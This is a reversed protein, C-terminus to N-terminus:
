VEEITMNINWYRDTVTRMVLEYSISSQLVVETFNTDPTTPWEWFYKFSSVGKAATELDNLQVRDAEVVYDWALTIIHREKTFRPRTYIYGDQTQTRITDDRRKISFPFSPCNELDVNVTTSSIPDEYQFIIAM